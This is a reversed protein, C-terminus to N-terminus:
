SMFIGGAVYSSAMSRESRLSHSDAMCASSLIMFSICTYRTTASGSPHLAIPFLHTSSNLSSLLPPEAYLAHRTAWPNECIGPTSKPAVKAGTRLVEDM